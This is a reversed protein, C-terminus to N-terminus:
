AHVICAPSFWLGLSSRQARQQRRGECAAFGDGGLVVRLRGAGSPRPAPAAGCVSHFAGRELVCGASAAAGSRSPCGAAAQRQSLLGLSQQLSQAQRCGAEKATDLWALCGSGASHLCCPPWCRSGTAPQGTARHGLATAARPERSCRPAPRGAAAGAASSAVGEVPLTVSPLCAAVPWLARACCSAMGERIGGGCGGTSDACPAQDDSPDLMRSDASQGHERSNLEPARQLMCHEAALWALCAQQMGSAQALALATYAGGGRSSSM